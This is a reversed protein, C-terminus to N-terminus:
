AKKVYWAAVYGETGDSAKVKLWQNQQGIKSAADPDVATLVENGSLYRILTNDAVYPQNRFSLSASVPKVKILASSASASAPKGATKTPDTPTAAPAAVQKVYWAAIYGTAGTSDRVHLWQGQKGIKAQGEAYSDLVIVVDVATLSKIVNNAAVAPQSRMTLQTTTPQVAMTRGDVVAAKQADAITRETKGATAAPKDQSKPFKGHGHWIAELIIDAPEKKGFSYRGRLTNAAGDKKWPDWIKYDDDKKGYIVVWHSDINADPTWDVRVMIISGEELGQDILDIPAPTGKCEVHMQREIDYQPFQDPVQAGKIWAGAFGGSAKMKANLSAPTENAGFHNVTMAFCTLMCGVQEITLNNQLGIKQDKWRSDNQYLPTDM